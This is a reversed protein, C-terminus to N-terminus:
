RTPNKGGLLTDTDPMPFPVLRGAYKEMAVADITNWQSGAFFSHNIAWRNDPYHYFMMRAANAGEFRYMGVETPLPVRESGVIRAKSGEPLWIVVGNLSIRHQRDTRDGHDVAATVAGRLELGSPTKIVVIDNRVLARIPVKTGKAM